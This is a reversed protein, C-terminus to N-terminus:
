KSVGNGDSGRWCPWDFGTAEPANKGDRGSRPPRDIGTKGCSVALMAFATTAFLVAVLSFAGWVRKRPFMTPNM